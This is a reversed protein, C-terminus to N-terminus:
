GAPRNSAIRCSSGNNTYFSSSRDTCWKWHLIKKTRKVTPKNSVIRRSSGSPTSHAVEIHVGSRLMKKLRALLAISLKLSVSDPDGQHDRHSVPHDPHFLLCPPIGLQIFYKLNRMMEDLRQLERYWFTHRVSKCSDLNLFFVSGIPAKVACDSSLLELFDIFHILHIKKFIM